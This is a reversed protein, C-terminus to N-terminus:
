VNVASRTQTQMMNVLFGIAVALIAIGIIPVSLYAFLVFGLLLFPWLRRLPLMSLLLAFGLAPLVHGVAAMGNSFWVPATKILSQLPGAGLWVALFVPIARTLGWPLQGLLHMATVGRENGEEAYHDAGHIFVTTVARGLVDLQTMLLATPLAIAFGAAFGGGLAGIATGVIAGTQFDPITAGGYTWLGLSLLTLSAGVTLGLPINGVIIGTVFGSILAEQWWLGPGLQLVIGIYAWIALVLAVWISYDPM